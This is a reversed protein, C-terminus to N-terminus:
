KTQDDTILISGELYTSIEGGDDFQIDYYWKGPKPFSLPGIQFVGTTPSLKDIPAIVISPSDSIAHLVFTCTITIDTLNIPTKALQADVTEVTIIIPKVTDGRRAPKLTHQM